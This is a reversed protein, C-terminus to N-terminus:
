GHSAEPVEEWATATVTLVQVRVYLLPPLKARLAMSEERVTAGMCGCEHGSCCAFDNGDRKRDWASGYHRWPETGSLLGICDDAARKTAYIKVKPRSFGEREWTVRYQQSTRPAMKSKQREGM